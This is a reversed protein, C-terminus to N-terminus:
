VRDKLANMPIAPVVSRAPKAKITMVRCDTAPPDSDNYM